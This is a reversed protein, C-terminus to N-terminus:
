SVIDCRVLHGPRLERLEPMTERCSQKALECREAFRCGPPFGAANPVTGPISALRVKEDHISPIADLLANTYPHLPEEFIADADATEVVQGGYMVVVHDATEAIVGLDHTILLIATGTKKQLDKMLDLVQAQITVDLATTPEDAILLKPECAMAMAIMARQRMGGSLEHPYQDVIQEARPIGVSRLLETARTKADRRSMNRHRVLVEGIQFGVRLVPNMASMPEQFIMGIKNGRVDMLERESLPVLDRGELLVQGEVIKGHPKPVLGMISLSTMSKGSGSEGVIGVVQGEHVDFDVGDVAKVQYNKNIFYTKLNRVQLLAEAM